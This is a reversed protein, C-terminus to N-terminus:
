ASVEMLIITGPNSNVQTFFSGSGISRNQQMKYVIASTSSPSDLTMTSFGILNSGASNYSVDTFQQLLTSDRYVRLGGGTGATLSYPSASIFVLIKSTSSQPTITATIGTDVYTSSSSTVSTTTTGQVVQMIRFAGRLDNVWAATLVNGTTQSAPLNTPTAM